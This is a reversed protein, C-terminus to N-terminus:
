PQRSRSRTYPHIWCELAPVHRRVAQQVASQDAMWRWRKRSGGFCKWDAPHAISAAFVRTAVRGGDVGAMSLQDDPRRSWGGWQSCTLLVYVLASADPYPAAVGPYVSSGM